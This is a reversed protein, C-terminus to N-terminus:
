CGRMSRVARLAVFKPDDARPFSDNPADSLPLISAPPATTKVTEVQTDTYVMGDDIIAVDEREAPSARPSTWGFTCNRVVIEACEFAWIGVGLNQFTTREITVFVSPCAGFESAAYVGTLPTQTPNQFNDRGPLVQVLDTVASDARLGHASDSTHM